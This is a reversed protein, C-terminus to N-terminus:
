LFNPCSVITMPAEKRLVSSTKYKAPHSRKVMAGLRKSASAAEVAGTGLRRSATLAALISIALISIFSFTKRQIIFSSGMAVWFSASPIRPKAASITLSSVMILPFIYVVRQAFLWSFSDMFAHSARKEKQNTDDWDVKEKRKKAKCTHTHTHTFISFFLLTRLLKYYNRIEIRNEFMILIFEVSKGKKEEQSIYTAYVPDGLYNILPKEIPPHPYFDTRPTTGDNPM